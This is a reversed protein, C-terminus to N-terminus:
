IIRRCKSIHDYLKEKIMNIHYILDSTKLYHVERTYRPYIESQPAYNKKYM